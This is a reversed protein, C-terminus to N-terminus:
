RSTKRDWLSPSIKDETMSVEYYQRIARLLYEPNVKSPALHPYFDEALHQKILNGSPLLTYQFQGLGLLYEEGAKIAVYGDLSPGLLSRGILSPTNHDSLLGLYDLVTPAVDAHQAIASVNKANLFGSPSYLIIPVRYLGLGSQYRVDSSESTHDGTIVFLTNQFWPKLSAYEFFQRLSDDAYRISKEMPSTLDKVKESFVDPIRYPNHSSLTFATAMFPQTAHSSLEDVMRKLFPGDYIGWAGDVDEEGYEVRGFYHNAGFLGAMVDFFMTGNKGGHFFWTDYGHDMLISPLGKIQNGQYETNIFPEDMLAPLGGLLSPLAEISRRGNAFGNEFWMSKQSLENLFPTLSRPNRLYEHGLSEVILLVVNQNKVSKFGTKTRFQDLAFRVEYPEMYTNAVISVPKSRLANFSSNLALAAWVGGESGFAHVPSLPKEQWGGRISLGIAILFLVVFPWQYRLRISPIRSSVWISLGYFLGILFFGALGVYFFQQAIHIVQDKADEFFQFVAFTSRRGTYRFYTADALDGILFPINLFVFFYPILTGRKGLLWHVIAVAVLPLNIMWLLSLDFRLGVIFAKTWNLDKLADWNMMLFWIRLLFWLFMGPGFIMASIIAIPRLDKNSFYKRMVM